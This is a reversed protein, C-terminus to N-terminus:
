WLTFDNEVYVKLLKQVNLILEDDSKVVARSQQQNSCSFTMVSLLLIYLTKKM